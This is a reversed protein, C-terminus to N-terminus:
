QSSGIWARVPYTGTSRIRAPDSKGWESPKGSGVEKALAKDSNLSPSTRLIMRSLRFDIRTAGSPRSRIPPGSLRAWGPPSLPWSPDSSPSSPARIAAPGPPGGRRRRPPPSRGRGTVYRSRSSRERRHALPSSAPAHALSRPDPQPEAVPDLPDDGPGGDGAHAGHGDGEAGEELLLLQGPDDAVGVELTEDGVAREQAVVPEVPQFPGEGAQGRRRRRRRPPAAGNARRSAGKRRQITVRPSVRSPGPGVLAPGPPGGREVPQRGGRGLRGEVVLIRASTSASTCGPSTPRM